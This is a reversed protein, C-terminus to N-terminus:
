LIEGSEDVVKYVEDHLQLYNSYSTEEIEYNETKYLSKDINSDCIDKPIWYVDNSVCNCFSKSIDKSKADISVIFYDDTDETIRFLTDKPLLKLRSIYTQKYLYDNLEHLFKDILTNEFKLNSKHLSKDLNYTAHNLNHFISHSINDIKSNINKQSTNSNNKENNFLDLNM